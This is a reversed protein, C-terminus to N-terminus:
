DGYRKLEKDLNELWAEYFMKKMQTQLNPDHIVEQLKQGSPLRQDKQAELQERLIRVQEELGVMRERQLDDKVPAGKPLWDFDMSKPPKPSTLKVKQERLKTSVKNLAQIRAAQALREDRSVAKSEPGPYTVEVGQGPVQPARDLDISEYIRKALRREPRRILGIAESIGPIRRKTDTGLSPTILQIDPRQKTKLTMAYEIEGTTKRDVQVMKETGEFTDLIDESTTYDESKALSASLAVQGLIGLAEAGARSIPVIGEGGTEVDIGKRPLDLTKLDQAETEKKTLREQTLEPEKRPRKGRVLKSIDISKPKVATSEKTQIKDTLPQTIEEYAQSATPSRSYIETALSAATIAVNTLSSLAGFSDTDILLSHRIRSPIPKEIVVGPEVIHPSGQVPKLWEQTSSDLIKETLEEGKPVSGTEIPIVQKVEPISIPKVQEIFLAESSKGAAQNMNRIATFLKSTIEQKGTGSGLSIPLPWIEAQLGDEVGISEKDYDESMMKPPVSQKAYDDLLGVAGKAPILLPSIDEMSEKFESIEKAQEPETLGELITEDYPEYEPKPLEIKVEKVKSKIMGLPAPRITGPEAIEEGTGGTKAIALSDIATPPPALIAKKAILDYSSTAAAMSGILGVATAIPLWNTKVSERKGVLSKKEIRKTEDESGVTKVLQDSQPQYEMAEVQQSIDAELEPGIGVDLEESTELTKSPATIQEDIPPETSGKKTGILKQQISEDEVQPSKISERSFPKELDTEVTKTPTSIKKVQVLQEVATKGKSTKVIPVPAKPAIIASASTGALLGLAGMIPTISSTTIKQTDGLDTRPEIEVSEDVAEDPELDPASVTPEEAFIGIDKIRLPKTAISRTDEEAEIVEDSGRPKSLQESINDPLVETTETTIRGPESPMPGTTQELEMLGPKPKYVGEPMNITSNQIAAASQHLAALPKELPLPRIITKSSILDTGEVAKTTPKAQLTKLQFTDPLQKYAITKLITLKVEAAKRTLPTINKTFSNLNTVVKADKLGSNNMQKIPKIINALHSRNKKQILNLHKLNRTNYVNLMTLGNNLPSGSGRTILHTKKLLNQLPVM